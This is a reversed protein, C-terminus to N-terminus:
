DRGDKGADPSSRGTTCPAGGGGVQQVTGEVNALRREFGSLTATFYPNPGITLTGGVDVVGKLEGAVAVPTPQDVKATIPCFEAPRPPPLPVTRSPPPDPMQKNGASFEPLQLSTQRPGIVIDGIIGRSSEMTTPFGMGTGVAGPMRRAWIPSTYGVSGRMQAEIAAIRKREEM